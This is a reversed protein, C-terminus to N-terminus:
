LECDDEQKPIILKGRAAISLGLEAAASKMQRFFLDQQKSLAVEDDLKIREIMKTLLEQVDEDEFNKIVNWKKVPDMKKLNRLKDSYEFYFERAIVYSALMDEDLQTLGFHVLMFALDYFKIKLSRALKSPATINKFKEEKAHETVYASLETRTYHHRSTEPRKRKRGAM